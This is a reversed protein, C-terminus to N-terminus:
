KESQVILKDMDQGRETIFFWVLLYTFVENFDMESLFIENAFDAHWFIFYIDFDVRLLNRRFIRTVMEYAYM